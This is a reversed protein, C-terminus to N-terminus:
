KRRARGLATALQEADPAVLAYRQDIILTPVATVGYEAALSRDGRVDAAHATEDELPPIGHRRAIAALVDPDGLWEGEVAYARMLSWVADAAVGYADARRVLRHADFTNAMRARELNIQLGEAAAMRKAIAFRHENEAHSLGFRELHIRSLTWDLDPPYAPDLQFARWRVEVAEETAALARDLRPKGIYCFPCVVDSFVEILM